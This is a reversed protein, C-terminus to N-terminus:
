YNSQQHNKANKVNTLMFNYPFSAIQCNTLGSKDSFVSQQM